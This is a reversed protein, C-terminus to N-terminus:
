GATVSGDGTGATDSSAVMRARTIASCFARMDPM